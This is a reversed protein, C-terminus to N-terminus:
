TTASIDTVTWASSVWRARSLAAMSCCALSVSVRATAMPWVMASSAVRLAGAPTVRMTIGWSLHDRRVSLPAVVQRRGWPCLRRGALAVPCGDGKVGFGWGAGFGALTLTSWGAWAVAPCAARSRRWSGGGGVFGAWCWRVTGYSLWLSGDWALVMTRVEAILM